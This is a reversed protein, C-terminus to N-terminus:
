SIKYLNKAGKDIKFVIMPVYKVKVRKNIVKQIQVVNKNLLGLAEKEKHDPFITLFVESKSLDSSTKVKTVTILFEKNDIEKLIARSIEKQLISDLKEKFFSMFIKSKIKINREV